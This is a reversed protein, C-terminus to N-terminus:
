RTRQSTVEKTYLREEKRGDLKKKQTRIREGQKGKGRSGVTRKQLSTETEKYLGRALGSDKGLSSQGL